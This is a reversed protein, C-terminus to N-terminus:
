QCSKGVPFNLIEIYFSSTPELALKGHQFVLTVGKVYTRGVADAAYATSCIQLSAGPIWPNGTDHYGSIEEATWCM